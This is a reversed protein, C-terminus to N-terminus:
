KNEHFLLDGTLKHTLLCSGLYNNKWAFKGVMANYLSNFKSRWVISLITIIIDTTKYTSRKLYRNPRPNPIYLRTQSHFFSMWLRTTLYSCYTVSLRYHYRLHMVIKKVFGYIQMQRSSYPICTSMYLRSDFYYRM